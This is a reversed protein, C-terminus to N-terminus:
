FPNAKRRASGFSQTSLAAIIAKAAACFNLRPSNEDTVASM